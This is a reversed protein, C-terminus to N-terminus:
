FRFDLKKQSILYWYKGTILNSKFNVFYSEPVKTWTNSSVQAYGGVHTFIIILSIVTLGVVVAM